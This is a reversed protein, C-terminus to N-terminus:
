VKFENLKEAIMLEIDSDDWGLGNRVMGSLKTAFKSGNPTILTINCSLTKSVDNIVISSKDIDITPDIFEGNIVGIDTEYDKFIFKVM